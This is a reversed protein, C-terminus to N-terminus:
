PRCPHILGMEGHLRIRFRPLSAAPHSNLTGSMATKLVAVGSAIETDFYWRYQIGQVNHVM